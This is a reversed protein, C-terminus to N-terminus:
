DAMPRLALPLRTSAFNRCHDDAPADDAQGGRVLQQARPRARSDDDELLFRRDGLVLAPMVAAHQVGTQIVSGSRELCSEGDVANSLHPAETFLIADGM